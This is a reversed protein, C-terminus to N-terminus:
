KRMNTVLAYAEEQTVQVAVTWRNVPVQRVSLLTPVGQLNVSEGGGEFGKIAAEMIKNKGEQVYTLLRDPEPHLILLRSYDFVFLYGTTGFTQKRYGGLANKSLLDVSCAVVAIIRGNEDLVPATFTLM